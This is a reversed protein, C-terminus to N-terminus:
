PVGTRHTEPLLIQPQPYCNNWDLGIAGRIQLNPLQRITRKLLEKEALNYRGGAERGGRIADFLSTSGLDTQLYCMEDSSVALVRPVPLKRQMFHRDLYVFAHDEDHSTGLVGIVTQGDAGTLRFYQRNSGAGALKEVHTPAQGAWTTYLQILQDMSIADDIGRIPM